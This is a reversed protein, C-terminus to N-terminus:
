ITLPIGYKREEKHVQRDVHKILVLYLPDQSTLQFLQLVVYACTAISGFCILLVIWIVACILCSEKYAIWVSLALVLCYFDILTAVMVLTYILAGLMVCGLASFFVRATVVSHKAKTEVDNKNSHRLLVHYIPDENAEQPSLKFLQILIYTSLVPIALGTTAFLFKLSIAKLNGM